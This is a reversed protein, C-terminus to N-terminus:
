FEHTPHSPDPPESPVRRSWPQKEDKSRHNHRDSDQFQQQFGPHFDVRALCRNVHAVGIEHPFVPGMGSIPPFADGHLDIALAQPSGFEVVGLRGSFIPDEVETIRNGEALFQGAVM